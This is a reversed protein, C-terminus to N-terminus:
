KKLYKKGNIIYIGDRGISKLQIGNLDYIKNDNVARNIEAASIGTEEAAKATMYITQPVNDSFTSSPLSFYMTKAPIGASADAKNFCMNELDLIYYNLGDEIDSAAIGDDGSWKALPNTQNYYSNYQPTECLFALGKVYLIEPCQTYTSGTSSHKGVYWYNNDNENSKLSDSRFSYAEITGSGTITHANDNYWLIYKGEPEDFVVASDCSFYAEYEEAGNVTLSLPNDTIKEGDSKRVWHTFHCREDAPTAILQIEDGVNNVTKSTATKGFSKYGDAVRTAVHTYVLFGCAEPFMPAKAVATLSDDDYITSTPSHRFPTEQNSIIINGNEDTEPYWEEGEASRAGKAVGLPIWGESAKPYLYFDHGGLGYECFQTEYSETWDTIASTDENKSNSVYIKGAGTPYPHFEDYFYYFHQNASAGLAFLCFCGLLLIRSKMQTFKKMM